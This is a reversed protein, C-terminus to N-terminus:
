GARSGMKALIGRIARESYRATYTMSMAIERPSQGSAARELIELYRAELDHVTGNPVYVRTGGAFSILRMAAGSGIRSALEVGRPCDRSPPVDYETGGRWAMLRNLATEGITEILYNDPSIHRPM